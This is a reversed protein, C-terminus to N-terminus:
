LKNMYGYMDFGALYCLHIIWDCKRKILWCLNDKKKLFLKSRYIMMKKLHMEVFIIHYIHKNSNNLKSNGVIFYWFSQSYTCTKCGNVPLSTTEKYAFYEWFPYKQTATTKRRVRSHKESRNHRWSPSTLCCVIIWDLLLWFQADIQYEIIGSIKVSIM